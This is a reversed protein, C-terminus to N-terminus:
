DIASKLTINDHSVAFAYSDHSLEKPLIKLGPNQRVFALAPQEDEVVCDVKGQLLAQVADATKTFREVLTNNGKKEIESVRTDCTTGLQVGIHAGELQKPSDIPHTNEEGCSCLITILILLYFINRLRYM